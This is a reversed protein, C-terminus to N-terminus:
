GTIKLFAMREGKWNGHAITETKVQSNSMSATKLKELCSVYWMSQERKHELGVNFNMQSVTQHSKM